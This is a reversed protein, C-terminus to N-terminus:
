ERTSPKILWDKGFPLFIMEYCITLWVVIVPWAKVVYPKIFENRVIPPMLETTSLGVVVLTVVMLRFNYKKHVSPSCLYWIAVGVMATIYGSTETGTSFLVVFLLVNALLMFRFRLYKYQSIRLYPIFFLILGPIILCLDSYGKLGSLKRVVGLLSVNQYPSFMNLANKVQLREFWDYYQSIIYDVGQTYLLPIAFFVITWFFCSGVLVLKRKSFFFFALGVIPYIKIFTGLMILCAAWFDKKKEIFVFALIIFAAVSINFQQVGQATMLEIYSFWYIFVKQKWTLPLLKIAYFLFLTNAAIWLVMGLWDPLVAFPAIVLSFFPGYHNSDYYEPYTDGYLTLGDIAHYYVYKFIKYNNYKGILFKVLAYVVGTILWIGLITKEKRLSPSNVLRKCKGVLDM